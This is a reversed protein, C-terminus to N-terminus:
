ANLAMAAKVKSAVEIGSNVLVGRQVVHRLWAELTVTRMVRILPVKDSNRFALLAERFLQQDVIGFRSTAMSKTLASLSDWETSIAVRPGRSAFSKRRRELIEAPVIDAMARRMLSRRYGPRLLQERPIAFAFELVDRDLFPYRKEFAPQTPLYKTALQRRITDLAGMNAQFSPLPGLFSLRRRFGGLIHTHRAVFRDTLWPAPHRSKSQPVLSGPLFDSLAEALIHFWPRRKALAWLKLNTALERFKGQVFLNQLEPMPTPVGGMVEDGGVGSLVVRIGNSELFSAQQRFPEKPQGSTQSPLAAFSETEDFNFISIGSFNIHLGTRGRQEEVKSFFPLENANPEDDDYFSLTLIESIDPCTSAISDAMCTVSPSDMGGSLEACIPRDSRLRRHVAEKFVSRFHEEYDRDSGYVIRKGSNFDWYRAITERDPRISVFSSPPVARIGVYPTEDAAPYSGLWGAVYAHNLEFQKGSLTVLPDLVSSWTVRELDNSYYLPRVGLIDKALVLLRDRANWITLAWDGLLQAFCGTDWRDFSAAVIEVDTPETSLVGRLIRILDKRNDLRGDWVLVTGSRLIYPQKERRSEATSHLAHHVLTLGKTTYESVGDPAYPCLISNAAEVEHPAVRRGDFNWIGFQISMPLGKQFSDNGNNTNVLLPGM